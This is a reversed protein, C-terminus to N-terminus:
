PSAPFVVRNEDNRDNRTILYTVGGLGVLGGIVPWLEGGGTAQPPPNSPPQPPTTPSPTITPTYAPTETATPMPTRTPPLDEGIRKGKNEEGQTFRRRNRNRKRVDPGDLAVSDAWHSLPRIEPASPSTESAQTQVDGEVVYLAEEEGADLVFEGRSAQFRKTATSIQCSGGEDLKVFVRGHSAKLQSSAEGTSGALCLQSGPKLRVTAGPVKVTTGEAGAALWQNVPFKDTKAWSGDPQQSLLTGRLTRPAHPGDPTLAWSATMALGLVIGTKLLSKRQM